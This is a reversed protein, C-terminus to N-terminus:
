ADNKTIFIISLDIMLSMFLRNNFSKILIRAEIIKYFLYAMMMSFLTTELALAIKFDFSVAVYGAGIAICYYIIKVITNPISCSGMYSWYLILIILSYFVGFIGFSYIATGIIAIPLILSILTQFILTWTDTNAILFQRGKALEVNLNITKSNYGKLIKSYEEQTLINM